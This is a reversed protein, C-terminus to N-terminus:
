PAGEQRRRTDAQMGAIEDTARQEARSEEQRAAALQRSRLRKVIDVERHREVVMVRAQELRARLQDLQHVLTLERQELTALYGAALQLDAAPASASPVTRQLTLQVEAQVQALEAEHARVLGELRGLQQMAEALRAERLSLVSVLRFPSRAM